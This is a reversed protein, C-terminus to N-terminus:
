QTEICHYAWTYTRGTSDAVSFNITMKGVATTVYVGQIVADVIAAAVTPQIVCVPAVAYSASFNVDCEAGTGPSVATTTLSINGAM